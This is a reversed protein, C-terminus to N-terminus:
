VSSNLIGNLKRPTRKDLKEGLVAYTWIVKYISENNDKYNALGLNYFIDEVDFVAYQDDNIYRGVIPVGFKDMSDGDYKNM